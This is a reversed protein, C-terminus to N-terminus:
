RIKIKITYLYLLQERYLIHAESYYLQVCQTLSLSLSLSLLSM